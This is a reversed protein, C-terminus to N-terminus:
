GYLGQQGAVETAALFCEWSFNHVAAAGVGERHCMILAIDDGTYTALGDILLKENIAKQMRAHITDMMADSPRTHGGISGVDAKIVSFTVKM